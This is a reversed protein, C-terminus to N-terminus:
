TSTQQNKEFELEAELEQVLFYNLFTRIVAILGLQILRELTPTMTTSLIDAALQFELALTLWMGLELRVKNFLRYRNRYSSVRIALQFTKFVGVIVCLVSFAELFFQSIAVLEELSVELQHLIGM